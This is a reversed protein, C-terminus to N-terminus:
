WAAAAVMHLFYAEGRRMMFASPEGPRWREWAGAEADWRFVDTLRPGLPAMALGVSMEEGAYTVLNVGPQLDLVAQAEVPSPAPALPAPPLTPTAPAATPVATPTSTPPISRATPTSTPPNPRATRVPTATATPEAPPPPESGSDNVLGFDLTWAGASHGVGAVVYHRNLINARHGASDMWAGVVSAATPFGWAINEAAQGPYGCDNARETPGRGDSDTHSLGGGYSTQRDESKWAAARALGPSPLLRAMGAAEREDNVLTLVQLEISDMGATSTDCNTLARAPDGSTRLALVLAAIM